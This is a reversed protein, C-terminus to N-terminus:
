SIVEVQNFELEVPTEREFMSVIVRIKKKEMNIEDIVGIFNELPGHKIKVSDGVSYNLVITQHEIGMSRFLM